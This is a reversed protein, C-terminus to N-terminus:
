KAERKGHKRNPLIVLAAAGALALAGAAVYLWLQFGDGSKAGTQDPTEPTTPTEPADPADPTDPTEPEAPTVPEAKKLTNTVVLTGDEAVSYSVEYGEPVSVERVTYVIAAGSEDTEPVEWACTWGNEASLTVPEGCPEGNALLQVAASAPRDESDDDDWVKAATVTVTEPEPLVKENFVLVVADKGNELTFTDSQALAFDEQQLDALAAAYYYVNYDAGGALERATYEGAPITEAIYVGKETLGDMIQEETVDESVPIADLEATGWTEGSAKNALSVSFTGSQEGVLFKALYVGTVPVTPVEFDLTKGEGYTLVASANTAFLDDENPEAEYIEDDLYVTYRLKATYGSLSGDKDYVPEAVDGISWRITKGDESVSATGSETAPTGSVVFGKGMEDVVSANKCATTMTGAITGFVDKLGEVDSADRVAFFKGTDSACGRLVHEGNEGADLAVSYVVAGSKKAANVTPQYLTESYDAGNGVVKDNVRAYTPAGDSLLVMSKINAGDGRLLEAAQEIGAELFTGGKAYAPETFPSGNLSQDASDIFKELAARDQTLPQYSPVESNFLVVGVRNTSNGAPLLQELFAKAAKKANAMRHGEYMSNSNDLVLIADNGPTPNVKVAANVTLEIDWANVMGEVATATKSVTVDEQEASGLVAAPLLALATVLVLLLALIKKKM